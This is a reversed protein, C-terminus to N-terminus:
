ILMRELATGGHGDAIRRFSQSPADMVHVITARIITSHTIAISRQDRVAEDALWTATSDPPAPSTVKVRIVRLFRLGSPYSELLEVKADEPIAQCGNTTADAPSSALVGAALM